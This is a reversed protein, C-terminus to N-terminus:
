ELRERDGEASRLAADSLDANPSGDALKHLIYPPRFSVGSRMRRVPSHDDPKRNMSHGFSRETDERLAPDM